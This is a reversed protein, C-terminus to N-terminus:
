RLSIIKNSIHNFAESVPTGNKYNELYLKGEDSLSMVQEDYPIRGMFEVDMESAIRKGGGTKFIDIREGCNPCIFGSMNEIVGIFPMKLQQAFRISKKADMTAMNQPTTVIIGGNLNPMLQAISLPEDGTGPPSDIIMYDIVGWNVDSLFQRILKMKMPGRWIVPSDESQLMSATSIVKMNSFAKIPEIKKNTSTLKEKELGMIKIVNPGHIDIDLLGVKYGKSMICYALNVAVTTKGVGGKGSFVMFKNKVGSMNKTIEEDKIINNM